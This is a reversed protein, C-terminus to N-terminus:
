SLFVQNGEYTSPVCMYNIVTGEFSKVAERILTTKGVRRKGYILIATKGSGRRLADTLEKLEKERGIFM